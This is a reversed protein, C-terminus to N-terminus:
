FIKSVQCKNGLTCSVYRDYEKLDFYSKALLYRENEEDHDVFYQMFPGPNDLKVGQLAFNLESLRYCNVIIFDCVYLIISTFSWVEMAVTGAVSLNSVM